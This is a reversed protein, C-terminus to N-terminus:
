TSRQLASLRNRHRLTELSECPDGLPGKAPVFGMGSILTGFWLHLIESRTAPRSDTIAVEGEFSVKGIEFSM